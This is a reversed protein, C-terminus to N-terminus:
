QASGGPQVLGKSTRWERAQEPTWGAPWAIDTGNSMIKPETYHHCSCFLDVYSASPESGVTDDEQSMCGPEHAEPDPYRIRSAPLIPIDM